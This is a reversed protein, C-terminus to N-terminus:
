GHIEMHSLPISFTVQNAKGRIPESKSGVEDIEVIPLFLYFLEIILDDAQGPTM